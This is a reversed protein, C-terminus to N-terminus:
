RRFTLLPTTSHFALKQTMSSSFLREFFQRKRTFMALVDADNEKIYDNIGQEISISELFAFSIVGKDIEARYKHKIATLAELEEELNRDHIHFCLVKANMVKGFRLLRKIVYADMTSLDSAYAITSVEKYRANEPIALVPVDVSTVMAATKSGLIKEKLGSAGKTGTVLLIPEIEKCLDEVIDVIFGMKIISDIPVDEIDLSVQLQAAKKKFDDLKNNIEIKRQEILENLLYGSGSMTRDVLPPMFAHFLTIKAKFKDALKLAFQLANDANPSFDTPFLITDM